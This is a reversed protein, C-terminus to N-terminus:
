RDADLTILAFFVNGIAPVFVGIPEDPASSELSVPMARLWYSREECRECRQESGYVVCIQHRDALAIADPRTCTTVDTCM